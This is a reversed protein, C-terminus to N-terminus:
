LGGASSAVPSSRFTLRAQTLEVRLTGRGPDSANFFTLVAFLELPSDAVPDLLDVDVRIVREGSVVVRERGLLRSKGFPPRQAYVEAAMEAPSILQAELESAELTVTAVTPESGPFLLRDAHIQAFAVPRVLPPRGRQDSELPEVPLRDDDTVNMPLEADLGGHQKIFSLLRTEDWGKWSEMAGSQVHRVTSSVVARDRAELQLEVTFNHRTPPGLAASPTSQTRRRASLARAQGIWDEKQIKAVSCGSVQSLKEVSSRALKGVSDIGGQKLKSETQVGIGEILRLEGPNRRAPM